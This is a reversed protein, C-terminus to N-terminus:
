GPVSAGTTLGPAPAPAAEPVTPPEPTDERLRIEVPLPGAGTLARPPIRPTFAGASAFESAGAEAELGVRAFVPEVAVMAAPAPTM